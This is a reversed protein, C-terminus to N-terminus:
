LGASSWLGVGDLSRAQLELLHTSCSRCDSSGFGDASPRWFGSRLLSGALACESARRGRVRPDLGRRHDPQRCALAIGEGQPPSTRYARSSWRGAHAESMATGDGRLAKGCARGRSHLRGPCISLCFMPVPMQRCAMAARGISRDRQPLSAACMSSSDQSLPRLACIMPRGAKM